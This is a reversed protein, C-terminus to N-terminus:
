VARGLGLNPSAPLELGRPCEASIRVGRVLLPWLRRISRSTLSELQVSIGPGVFTAVLQGIDDQREARVAVGSVARQVVPDQPLTDAMLRVRTADRVASLS